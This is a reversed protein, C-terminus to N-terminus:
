RQQAQRGRYWRFVEALVVGLLTFFLNMAAGIWIDSRSEKQLEGRLAQSVAAVQDAHLQSLQQARAADAALQEALQRRKGIEAEIASVHRSAQSLSQTLTAIREDLTEESRSTPTKFYNEFAVGGLSSIAAVVSAVIMALVPGRNNSM